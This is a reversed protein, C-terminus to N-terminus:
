LISCYIKYQGCNKQISMKLGFGQSIIGQGSLMQMHLNLRNM